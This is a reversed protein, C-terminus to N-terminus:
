FDFSNRNRVLTGLAVMWSVISIGLGALFTYSTFVFNYAHHGDSIPVHLFRDKLLNIQKGDEYVRWGPYFSELLLLSDDSTSSVDVSINNPGIKVHDLGEKSKVLAAYPDATFNEYLVVDDKRLIGEPQTDQPVRITEGGLIYAPQVDSYVTTTSFDFRTFAAAPSDKLQLGYNSNFIKQEMSVLRHQLLPKEQLYQAIYFVRRDRRKIDSILQTSTESHKIEMNRFQVIYLFFLFTFFLNMTLTAIITGRLFANRQAYWKQYGLACIVLLIVTLMGFVRSPVHFFQLSPVVNLIWHYPNWSAAPMSLFILVTGTTLFFVSQMHSFITRRAFFLTVGILTLPGVFAIKEWWAFGTDLYKEVGLLGFLPKIPLFLYYLLSIPNQSGAFPEKLKGIYNQLEILPLLKVSSLFLFYALIRITMNTRKITGVTFVLIGAYLANYLDGSFLILSMSIATLLESNSRTKKYSEYLSLFFWPLIGFSLVKEFHGAVLHSAVYGCSVLTCSLLISIVPFVKLRHLFVYLGVGGFFLSIFYLLKVAADPSFLIFAPLVLPHFTSHLPDASVPIGQNIYPNWQPFIHHKILSDKIYIIQTINGDLDSARDLLPNFIISLM